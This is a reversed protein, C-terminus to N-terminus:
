SGDITSATELNNYCLLVHDNVGYAAVAVRPEAACPKREQREPPKAMDHDRQM